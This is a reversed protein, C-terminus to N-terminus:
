VDGDDEKQKKIEQSLVYVKAGLGVVVFVITLLVVMIIYLEAELM